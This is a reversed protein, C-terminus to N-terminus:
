SLLAVEWALRPQVYARLQSRLQELRRQRQISPTRRWLQLQWWDLLWLQQEGDLAETLDRALALAEMPDSSLALLRDALGEPLQDWQERHRLLAGPSGAALELLGPPESGEVAASGLAQLVQNMALPDLRSFPIAQCRSRITSLLRDPAATLLLLLGGGPEELTKLLANAAGEAMAEVSEIVVLVRNAELPRRALFRGVARVQELRLQPPARRSMGREAAESAPVLEGQHQYTPEVWLLDPHNGAALRRRLTESGQPGALVGELFGLAAQRRGIGEPGCFLYAPALRQRELAARLLTLAREQGVLGAFPDAM